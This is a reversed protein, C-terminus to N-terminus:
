APPRVTVGGPGAEVIRLCQDVPHEVIGPLTTYLIGNRTAQGGAHDHGCFYAAVGPSEDFIRVVDAHDWLLHASTSAEALAPFHCFVISREGRGHAARLTRQLWARQEPGVAGNWETANPHGAARLRQLLAAGERFQPSGDPWGGKVSLAMGDLVIFQWGGARFAYHAEALGFRRLVEARSGFFDHNGLLHYRPGPLREFVPLIRRLNAEGEDILDGLHITFSPKEPTLLDAAQALKALSDGYQRRGAPAKDAYQTDALVAFRIAGPAAMVALSQLFQRRSPM